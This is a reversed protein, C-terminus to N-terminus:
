SSVGGRLLDHYREFFMLNSKLSTAESDGLRAIDYQEIIRRDEARKREYKMSFPPNTLVVDFKTKKLIEKLEQRELKKDAKFSREIRIKKDLTDALYIHSGGDGHLYMNMRTVPVIDDDSADIGYLSEERIVKMLDTKNSCAEPINSILYDLAFILFGGTGCSGDLITDPIYSNTKPDRTFQLDAMEVMFRVVSRPTFFQGLEKGRVAAELFTEFVKGNVDDDVGKLNFGEILEVISKITSPNM